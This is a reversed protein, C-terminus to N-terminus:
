PVFGSAESPLDAVHMEECLCADGRLTIDLWGCPRLERLVLTAVLTGTLILTVVLIPGGWRAFWRKM